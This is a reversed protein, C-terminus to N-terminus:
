GEVGEPVPRVCRAWTPPKKIPVWKTEAMNLHGLCYHERYSGNFRDFFNVGVYKTRSGDLRFKVARVFTPLGGSEGFGEDNCPALTICTTAIKTINGSGYYDDLGPVLTAGAGKRLHAICLIPKGLALALDRLRKVIATMEVIENNRPDLDIYHLHDVIILEAEASAALIQHELDNIDFAGSSRYYTSLLKYEEEFVLEVEDGYPDDLTDRCRGKRWEAYGIKVTEIDAGIHDQRWREVLMGYKIRREIEKDEAELFFAAVRRGKRVNHQAVIKAFETKGVGTRAGIVIMEHRSIGLLMDDLFQIGYSLPDASDSFRLAAEGKIRKASFDVADQTGGMGIDLLKLVTDTKTVLEYADDHKGANYATQIAVAREALIQGKAWDSLRARLDDLGISAASKVCLDLARIVGAAELGRKIKIENRLEDANPTRNARLFFGQIYGFIEGVAQSGFWAHTIGLNRLQAYFDPTALVHGLAAAQDTDTFQGKGM